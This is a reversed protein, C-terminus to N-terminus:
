FVGVILSDVERMLFGRSCLINMISLLSVGLRFACLKFFTHNEQAGISSLTLSMTAWDVISLIHAFFCCRVRVLAGFGCTCFSPM